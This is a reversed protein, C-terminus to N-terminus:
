LVLLRAKQSRRMVWTSRTRSKRLSVERGKKVKKKLLQVKNSDDEEEAVSLLHIQEAGFSLHPEQAANVPVQTKESGGM